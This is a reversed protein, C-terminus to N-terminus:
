RPESSIASAVKKRIYASVRAAVKGALVIANSSRLAADDSEDQQQQLLPPRALRDQREIDPAVADDNEGIGRAARDAAHLHRHGGEKRREDLAHDALARDAGAERQGGHGEGPRSAAEDGASRQKCM